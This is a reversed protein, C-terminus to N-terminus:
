NLDLSLNRLSHMELHLLKEKANSTHVKRKRKGINKKLFLYKLHNLWLLLYRRLCFVMKEKKYSQM